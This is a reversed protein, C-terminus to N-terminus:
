YWKVISLWFGPATHLMEDTKKDVVDCRLGKSWLQKIGCDAQTCKGAICAETRQAKPCLLLDMHQEKKTLSALKLLLQLRPELHVPTHDDIKRREHILSAWDHIAEAASRLGAM